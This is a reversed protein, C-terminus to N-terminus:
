VSSYNEVEGYNHGYAVKSYWTLKNTSQYVSKNVSCGFTVSDEESLHADNQFGTEKRTFLAPQLHEFHYRKWADYEHM